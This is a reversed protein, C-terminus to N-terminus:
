AMGSPGAAEMSSEGELRRLWGVALAGDGRAAATGTRSSRVDASADRGSAGSKSRGAAAEATPGNLVAAGSGAASALAEADADGGTWLKFIASSSEEPGRFVKVM